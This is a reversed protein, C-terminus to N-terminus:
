TAPELGARPALLCHPGYTLIPRKQKSIDRNCSEFRPNRRGPPLFFSDSPSTVCPSISTEVTTVSHQGPLWIGFPGDKRCSIAKEKKQFANTVALLGYPKGYVPRLKGDKSTSNSFILPM